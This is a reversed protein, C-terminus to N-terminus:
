LVRFPLPLENLYIKRAETRISECEAMFEDCDSELMPQLRNIYVSMEALRDDDVLMGLIKVYDDEFYKKLVEIQSNVDGDSEYASIVSEIHGYLRDNKSSVTMIAMIGVAVIVTIISLSIIIRKM